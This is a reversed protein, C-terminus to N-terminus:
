PLTDAIPTLLELAGGRNRRLNGREDVAQARVKVGGGRPGLRCSHRIGPVRYGCSFRLLRGVWRAADLQPDRELAEERGEVLDRLGAGYRGSTGIM